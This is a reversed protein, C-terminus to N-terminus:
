VFFLVLLQAILVRLLTVIPYVTAYAIAPANSTPALSNAFGLAPTNTLSGALLGCDTMYNLKFYKRSVWGVIILPIFTILAASAMWYYGGGECFAGALLDGSYLGVSALFLAMGLEKLMMKVTHPLYWHLKGVHGVNSLIISVLLPGGALGLKISSPLGPLPIPINGLLVGLVIGLFLPIVQPQQLQEAVYGVEEDLKEIAEESGVVIFNDGIRLAYDSTPQLDFDARVVKTISIDYAAEVDEVPMGNLKPSSITISRSVVLSPKQKLDADTEKGVVEELAKLDQLSGEALLIDGSHIRTHMRAVNVEGKHMIRSIIISRKDSGPLEELKMGELDDNCVELNKVEIHSFSKQQETYFKQAEQRPSIKLLVKLSIMVTILGIIGIPYGIAYGIGASKLAEPGITGLGEMAQQAAGLAPTNTTAGAFLGVVIPMEIGGFYYLGLTILVSIIVALFAMATLFVGKNRMSSIISPGVQLGVCYLFLVLGGDRMFELLSKDVGVGFNAFAIGSFLVGAAGLSVGGLSVKGIAWGTVIVMGIVIIAATITGSNLFDVLWAM